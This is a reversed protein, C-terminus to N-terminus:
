EDEVWTLVGNVLKLTYTKDETTSPFKPLEIGNNEDFVDKALEKIDDRSFGYSQIKPDPM